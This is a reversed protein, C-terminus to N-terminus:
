NLINLKQVKQDSLEEQFDTCSLFLILAVELLNFKLPISDNIITSEMIIQNNLVPM